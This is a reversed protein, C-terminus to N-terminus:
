ELLWQVRLRLRQLLRLLKIGPCLELLRLLQIGLGLRLRKVRLSLLLEVRLLLLEVRLSLLLEVRLLEVRLSFWLLGRLEIRLGLLLGGM